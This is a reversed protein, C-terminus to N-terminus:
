RVPAFVTLNTMRVVQYYNPAANTHLYIKFTIPSAGASLDMGSVSALDFTARSSNHIGVSADSEISSTGVVYDQGGLNVVLTFSVTFTPYDAVGMINQTLRDFSLTGVSVRGNKAPKLTFSFYRGKRLAESESTALVPTTMGVKSASAALRAFAHGNSPSIGYSAREVNSDGHVLFRSAEIESSVATPEVGRIADDLKYNVLVEQAPLLVSSLLLGVLAFVPTFSKM